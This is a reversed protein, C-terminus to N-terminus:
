NHEIEKRWYNMVLNAFEHAKVIQGFEARADGDLNIVLWSDWSGEKWTGKAWALGWVSSKKSEIVSELNPNTPAFHKAGVALHECIQLLPMSDRIEKCTKKDNPYKWELLHWATVFFNYAHYGNQPESSLNKFEWELKSYLDNQNNLGFVGKM